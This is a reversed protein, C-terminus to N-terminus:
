ISECDRITTVTRQGDARWHVSIRGCRGTDLLPIQRQELWLRLKRSPYGWRNGRGCCAIVLEPRAARYFAPVTDRGSGHHPAVVVEAHMNFGTGLMYKQAEAVIDGTFLALGDGNRTLRLVLSAANGHWGVKRGPADRELSNQAPPHLVQLRLGGDGLIIEDGAALTHTENERRLRRWRAMSGGASDRGNHFVAGTPLRTLIYFLGGLHDLDPHTNLAVAIRPNRNNSIYPAVVAHGPDFNRSYSGGGDVLLRLGGPTTVLMAQGQGVDLAEVTLPQRLGQWFRLAPGCALFAIGIVLLTRARAGTSGGALLWALGCGLAAYALLASWHPLLFAPEQLLGMTDLHNLLSLLLECPWAAVAAAHSALLQCFELPLACLMLSIFAAPLTILGLLPLWLVNMVFYLGAQQFQMLQLPLLVLQVLLSTLFIQKLRWFVVGCIGREGEPYPFLKIVAPWAILIVAVCLISLQFGMHYAALPNCCLIALLALALLDVGDFVRRWWLFVCAFILMVSARQLSPPADGLWLYGQALIASVATVLQARPRWLYMSPCCFSCFLILLWGGLGAIALHQGSLALSHALTARAFLNITEQGLYFRNGFLLAPLIGQAQTPADSGSLIALFKSEWMQRFSAGWAPAGSLVPSGDRGKSWIRWFVKQSFNYSEYGNHSYNAFGHVPRVTRTVCIGQGTVPRFVPKDWTWACLGPLPEGGTEPRVEKLIVRLRGNSLGQAHIVQGCLRAGASEVWRPPSAIADYAQRFQWVGWGLASCFLFLALCLRPWFWLRRDLGLLLLAAGGAPVPFSAALLGCFSLLLYSHWVLSYQLPLSRM